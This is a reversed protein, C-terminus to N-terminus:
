EEKYDYNKGFIERFSLDPYNKEFAQQAKRKWYLEMDRNVHIEEHHEMCLPIVLHFKESWKRNAWGSIVHHPTIDKSGCVACRKTDTVIISVIKGM